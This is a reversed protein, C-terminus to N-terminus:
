PQQRWLQYSRGEIAHQWPECKVGAAHSSHLVHLTRNAIVVVGVHLEASSHFLVVDFERPLVEGGIPRFGTLEAAHKIAAVNGPQVDDHEGVVVLPLEVDRQTLFVHRVLGWCNFSAPGNAGPAWPKGVYDRIWHSM